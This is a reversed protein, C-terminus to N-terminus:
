TRDTDPLGTIGVVMAAVILPMAPGSPLHGNVALGVLVGVPGIIAIGIAQLRGVGAESRVAWGLVPTGIMVFLFGLLELGFGNSPDFMAEPIGYESLSGVAVAGLGGVTMWWGRRERKGKGRRSRVVVALCFVVVSLALGFIVGYRNYTSVADLGSVWSPWQVQTLWGNVTEGERAGYADQAICRTLSTRHCPGIIHDLEIPLLTSHFL